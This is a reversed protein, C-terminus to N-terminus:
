AEEALKRAVALPVQYKEGDLVVTVQKRSAIREWDGDGEKSLGAEKMMRDCTECLRITSPIDELSRFVRGDCTKGCLGVRFPIGRYNLEVRSPDVVHFVRSGSYVFFHPHYDRYKVYIYHLSGESRALITEIDEAMDVQCRMNQLVVM